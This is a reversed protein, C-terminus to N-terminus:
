SARKILLSNSNTHLSQSAQERIILFIHNHQKVGSEIFSYEM